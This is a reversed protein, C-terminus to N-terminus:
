GDDPERDDRKAIVEDETEDEGDDDLLRKTKEEVDEDRAYVGGAQEM